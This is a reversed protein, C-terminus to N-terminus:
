AMPDFGSAASCAPMAAGRSIKRDNTPEPARAPSAPSMNMARAPVMLAVAPVASSNSATAAVTTPPTLM